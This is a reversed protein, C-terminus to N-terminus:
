PRRASVPLCCFLVECMWKVPLCCCKVCGNRRSAVSEGRLTSQRPPVLSLLPPSPRLGDRDFVRHHGGRLDREGPGATGGRSGDAALRWCAHAALCEVVLGARRMCWAACSTACSAACSTACSAACSAVHPRRPQPGPVERLDLYGSAPNLLDRINENYVQTGVRAAEAPPEPRSPRAPPLPPYNTPTSLLASSPPSPCSCGQVAISQVRSRPAPHIPPPPPPGRPVNSVRPLGSAACSLPPRQRERHRPAHPSAHAPLLRPPPPHPSCAPPLLSRPPTQPSAISSSQSRTSWSAPTRRVFHPPPHASRAALHRANKGRHPACGLPQPACNCPPAPAGVEVNGLMTYTKGAGTAGYAFCSANYGDMIGALLKQTTAKYVEEQPTADHFAHDFAYRRERSRNQRLYDDDQGGDLKDRDLIVVMKDDVVRVTNAEGQELHNLPRVRVAVDISYIGSVEEVEEEAFSPERDVM